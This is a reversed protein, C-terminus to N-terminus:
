NNLGQLYPLWVIVFVVLLFCIFLIVLILSVNLTSDMRDIILNLEDNILKIVGAKIYKYLSHDIEYLLENTRTNTLNTVDLDVLRKRFYELYFM